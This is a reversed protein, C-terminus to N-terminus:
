EVIAPKTACRHLQCAAQVPQDEGRGARDCLKRPQNPQSAYPLHPSKLKFALAWGHRNIELPVMERRAHDKVSHIEIDTVTDRIPVKILDHGFAANLDIVRCQVTPNNLKRRQDRCVRQSSFLRCGDRPPHVHGLQEM